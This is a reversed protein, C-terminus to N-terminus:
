IKQQNQSINHVRTLEESFVVAGLDALDEFRQRQESAIKPNPNEPLNNEAQVVQSIFKGSERDKMTKYCNEADFPNEHQFKILLNNLDKWDIKRNEFGKRQDHGALFNRILKFYDEPEMQMHNPQPLTIYIEDKMNPTKFVWYISGYHDSRQTLFDHAISAWFMRFNDRNELLATTVPLLKRRPQNLLTPMKSEYYAANVEQQFIFLEEASIPKEPHSIADYYSKKCAEYQNFNSSPMLDDSRVIMLKHPDESGVLAPGPNTIQTMLSGYHTFFDNVYATTATPDTIYSVNEGVTNEAGQPNPDQHYVRIYAARLAPRTPVAIPEYYPEAQKYINTALDKGTLYVSPLESVIAKDKKLMAYPREALRLMLKLNYNTPREGTVHFTEIKPPQNPKDSPTVSELQMCVKGGEQKVNWRLQGLASKVHDPNSEYEHTGIVQSVKKLQKSTEFDPNGLQRDLEYNQQVSNLYDDVATYLSVFEQGSEGTALYAIWNRVEQRTKEAIAQMESATEALFYLLIDDKRVDIVTQEARLYNRQAQHADPHTFKDWFTVFCAKSAESRYRAQASTAAQMARAKPKLNEARETTVATIFSRFQNFSEVLEEMFSRVYGIKGSKAILPDTSQGNLTNRMWIALLSQFREVQFKKAEKLAEGYTGTLIMGGKSDDQGYHQASAAPIGNVLRTIADSPKDGYEMSPRLNPANWLLFNLEQSISSKLKKGAEDNSVETLARLYRSQTTTLGGKAAQNVLAGDTQAQRAKRVEGVMPLFLTSQVPDNSGFDTQSQAGLFDLAANLGARGSPAEANRTDLVKVQRTKPEVEPSLLGKLVEKALNLAFKQKAYYVPVKLTYSGIASHYVGVPMTYRTSAIQNIVYGTYTGGAKEDLVLSMCHAIAPFVGKEPPPQIPLNPRLPDILYSVDMAVSECKVELDPDTPHYRIVTQRATDNLMFRDIENWAAFARAMKDQGVGTGADNVFASPLVLFGRVVFNRQALPGIIKKALYAMDVLTGAGTGGALSCVLLVELQNQDNIFNQLPQVSARLTNIVREISNFLSLRGLQRIAGAGVTTTFAAQPLKELMVKAPFWDLYPHRGVEIEKVLQFLPAGISFYEIDPELKINGLEFGLADTDFCLLKVKDPLTGEGIELLEKKLYTVVKQGTGGLGIVIAPRTM